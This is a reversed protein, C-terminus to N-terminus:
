LLMLVNLLVSCVPETYTSVLMAVHKRAHPDCMQPPTSMAGRYIIKVHLIVFGKIGLVHFQVRPARGTVLVDPLTDPASTRVTGLSILLVGM